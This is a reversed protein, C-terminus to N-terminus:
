PNCCWHAITQEGRSCPGLQDGEFGLWTLIGFPITESRDIRLFMKCSLLTVIEVRFDFASLKFFCGVAVCSFSVDKRGEATLENQKNWIPKQGYTQFIEFSMNASSACADKTFPSLHMQGSNVAHSICQLLVHCLVKTFYMKCDLINTLWDVCDLGNKIPQM